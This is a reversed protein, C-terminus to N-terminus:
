EISAPRLHIVLEHIHENCEQEADANGPNYSTHLYLNIEKTVDEPFIDVDYYFTGDEAEEMEFFSFSPAAMCESWGDTSREEDVYFKFYGRLEEVPEEIYYAEIRFSDSTSADVILESQKFAYTADYTWVNEPEKNDCAIAVLAILAYFLRKM